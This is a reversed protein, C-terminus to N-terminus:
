EGQDGMIDLFERLSLNGRPQPHAGSRQRHPEMTSLQRQAPEKRSIEALVRQRITQAARRSAAPVFQREPAWDAPLLVQLSLDVGIVGIEQETARGARLLRQEIM